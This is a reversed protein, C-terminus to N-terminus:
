RRTEDVNANIRVLVGKSEVRPPSRLLRDSDAVQRVM